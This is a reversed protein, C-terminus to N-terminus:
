QSTIEPSQNFDSRHGFRRAIFFRSMFADCREEVVDEDEEDLLILSRSLRFLRTVGPPLLRAHIFSGCGLVWVRDSYLPIEPADPSVYDFSLSVSVKILSKIEKEKECKIM